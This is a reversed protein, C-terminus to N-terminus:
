FLRATALASPVTAIARVAAHQLIYGAEQPGFEPNVPVLVAGLRALAFLLVVYDASNSAMAGVRERGM